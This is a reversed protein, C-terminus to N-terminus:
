IQGWSEILVLGTGSQLIQCGDLCLYKHRIAKRRLLLVIHLSLMLFLFVNRTFVRNDTSMIVSCSCCMDHHSTHLYPARRDAASPLPGAPRDCAKTAAPSVENWMWCNWTSMQKHLARHGHVVRWEFIVFRSPLSQWHRRSALVDPHAPFFRTKWCALCGPLWANEGYIQKTGVAESPHKM